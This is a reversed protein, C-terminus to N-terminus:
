KRGTALAVNLLMIRMKMAIIRPAAAINASAGEM